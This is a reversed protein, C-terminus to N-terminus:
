LWRSSIRLLRAEVALARTGPEQLQALREGRGLSSAPLPASFIPKNVARSQAASRPTVPAPTSPLLPGPCKPCCLLPLLTQGPCKAQSGWVAAEGMDEGVRALARRGGGVPITSPTTWLQPREAGPGCETPSHWLRWEVLHENGLELLLRAAMGWVRPGAGLVM